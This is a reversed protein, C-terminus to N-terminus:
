LWQIDAQAIVESFQGGTPILDQQIQLIAGDSWGREEGPLNQMSAPIAIVLNGVSVSIPSYTKHVTDLQDTFVMKYWQNATFKGPNFGTDQWGNSKNSIQYHGGEAYNFQRSFNYTVGNITVVTDFEIAQASNATNEDFMVTLCTIIRGSNPLIPREIYAEWDASDKGNGKAQTSFTMLGLMHDQTFGYKDPPIGGINSGDAQTHMGWGFNTHLQSDIIM